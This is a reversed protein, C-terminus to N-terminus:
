GRLRLAAAAHERDDFHRKTTGIIQYDEHGKGALLVVDHAGAGTVAQVIATARDPEVIVQRAVPSSPVTGEPRVVRSRLPATGEPTASGSASARPKNDQVGIGAPVGAVVERIIAQPDETRPNDSTIFVRDALRCAVAAMKPRKTRDRDGGCGFVVVLKGQPAVLPRLAELVKELSDHTHAYDVLVAPGGGSTGGTGEGTTRRTDSADPLVRELRGPVGPFDQLAAAFDAGRSNGAVAHAAAVAQLTNIANHRGVLPYSAEFSGWPGDFCARTYSAKLELPHCQCASDASSTLTQAWGAPVGSAPTLRCGLIRARCGRRMRAAYLDDENIIALSQPALGEFLIAKAAGYNDMDGHYDLHDGTLNTFVAVDFRLAATRGQHLAQSSVEAVAARCGNKVMAALHRSFDAAGPTTLEATRRQAGDDICVTGILGCPIGLRKLIHQILFATTTKGKTGTVGILKLQRAPRDFFREALEGVLANNINTGHLWVTTGSAAQGGTCAAEPAPAADTVIAAAGRKLADAIYAQGSTKTGGRAIFLAGLTVRRSDDTVDTIDVLNLAVTGAAHKLGLGDILKALLM